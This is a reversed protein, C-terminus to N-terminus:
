GAQPRTGHRKAHNMENYEPRSHYSSTYGAVSRQQCSDVAAADKTDQVVVTAPKLTTFYHRLEERRAPDLAHLDLPVFTTRLVAATWYLLVWDTKSQDCGSLEPHAADSAKAIMDSPGPLCGMGPLSAM